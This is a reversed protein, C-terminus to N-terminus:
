QVKVPAGDARLKTPAGDAVLRVLRVFMASANASDVSAAADFASVFAQVLASDVGFAQELMSIVAQVKASDAGQGLDNASLIIGATENGTAADTM